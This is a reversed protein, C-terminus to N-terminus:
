FFFIMALNWAQRSLIKSVVLSTLRMTVRSSFDPIVLTLPVGGALVMFPQVINLALGDKLHAIEGLLFKIFKM